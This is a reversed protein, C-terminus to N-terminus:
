CNRRANQRAKSCSANATAFAAAKEAMRVNKGAMRTRADNRDRDCLLSTNTRSIKRATPRIRGSPVLVATASYKVPVLGTGVLNRTVVLMKVRQVAEPTM